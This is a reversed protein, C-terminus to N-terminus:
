VQKIRMLDNVPVSVELEKGIYSLLISVREKGSKEVLIGELGIMSGDMIRVAEGVKLEQNPIQYIQDEGEHSKLIDIVSSAITAAQSGFYVINAVGYTSRIPSWNDVSTDLYIFLYRPFMPEVVARYRGRYRKRARYLPLYVEYGQRLLNECAKNEQKPKAYVLYWLKTTSSIPSDISSM